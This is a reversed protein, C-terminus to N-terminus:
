MKVFWLIYASYFFLSNGKWQTLMERIVIIFDKKKKQMSKCVNQNLSYVFCKVDMGGVGVGRLFKWLWIHSSFTVNLFFFLKIKSSSKENERLSFVHPTGSRFYRSNICLCTNGCGKEQKAAIAKFFLFYFLFVTYKVTPSLRVM